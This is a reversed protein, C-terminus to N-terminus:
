LECDTSLLEDVRFQIEPFALPSVVDSPHFKLVTKTWPQPNRSKGDPSRRRRQLTRTVEVEMRDNRGGHGAYHMGDPKEYGRAPALVPGTNFTLTLELFDSFTRFHERWPSQV